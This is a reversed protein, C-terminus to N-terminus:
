VGCASRQERVDCRLRSASHFPPLSPPHLSILFSRCFSSLLCSLMRVVGKLWLALMGEKKMGPADVAVEFENNKEKVDLSLNPVIAQGRGMGGSTM